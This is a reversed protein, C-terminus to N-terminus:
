IRAGALWNVHVKFGDGTLLSVTEYLPLGVTALDLLVPEFAGHGRAYEEFWDGVAPGQRGPRTSAVIINLKLTM